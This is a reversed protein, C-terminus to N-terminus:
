IDYRLGDSFIVCTGAPWDPPPEAAYVSVAAKQFAIAGDDLWSGYVSVIAADVAAIDEATAAAALARMSADDAQWGADAYDAAMRFTAGISTSSASAAHPGSGTRADRKSHSRTMRGISFWGRCTPHWCTMSSPPVCRRRPGSGDSASLPLSLGRNGSRRAPRATPRSRSESVVTRTRRFSPRFRGTKAM